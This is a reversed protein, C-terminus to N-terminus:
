WAGIQAGKPRTIFYRETKERQGKKVIGKIRVQRQLTPWYILLSANPNKELQKAKTSEYNTFFVFGNKDFYKILIIRSDPINNEDVTSLSAIDLFDPDHELAEELWKKFQGFPNALIDKKRLERKEYETRNAKLRM